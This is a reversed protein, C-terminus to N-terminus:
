ALWKLCSKIVSKIEDASQAIANAVIELDDQYVGAVSAEVKSTAAIFTAARMQQYVSDLMQKLQYLLHEFQSEHGHRIDQQQALAKLLHANATGAKKERARILKLILDDVRALDRACNSFTISLRHIEVALQITKAAFEDVFDTIVKFGLAQEGARTAVARANKAVLALKSAEKRTYKVEVAIKASILLSWIHKQYRSPSLSHHLYQIKGMFLRLVFM